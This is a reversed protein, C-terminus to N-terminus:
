GCDMSELGPRNLIARVRLLFGMFFNIRIAATQAKTSLLIAATGLSATAAGGSGTNSHILIMFSATSAPPVGGNKAERMAAITDAETKSATLPMSGRKRGIWTGGFTGSPAEGRAAAMSAAYTIRASAYGVCPAASVVCTLAESAASARVSFACDMAAPTVQPCVTASAMQAQRRVSPNAGGGAGNSPTRPM